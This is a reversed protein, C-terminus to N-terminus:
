DVDAHVAAAQPLWKAIAAYLADSAIPKGVHDNMGAQLCRERDDEFAGATLALIPLEGV